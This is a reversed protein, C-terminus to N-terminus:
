HFQVTFTGSASVQMSSGNVIHLGGTTSWGLFSHHLCGVVSFNYPTSTPTFTGSTNNTYPLGNFKISGCNGPNTLFTVTANAPYVAKIVKNYLLGGCADHIHVLYPGPTLAHNYNLMPITVNYTTANAPATQGLDQVVKGSPYEMELFFLQGGILPGSLTANYSGGITAVSGTSGILAAYPAPFFISPLDVFHPTKTLNTPVSWSGYTSHSPSPTNGWRWRAELTVQGYRANVMLSVKMSTLSAQAGTKFVLGAAVASSRALLGMPSWGSANLTVNRPPIELSFNGGAALPFKYFTAPLYVTVPFSTNNLSVVALELQGSINGGPTLSRTPVANTIFLSSPSLARVPNCSPGTSNSSAFTSSGASASSAVLPSASSPVMLAVVFLVAALSVVAGLLNRSASAGRFVPPAFRGGRLRGSRTPNEGVGDQTEVAASAAGLNEM